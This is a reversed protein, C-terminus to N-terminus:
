STKFLKIFYPVLEPDFQKGSDNKILELATEHTYAPKYPRASILADYVDIIAMIRASLPIELGSLGKPYGTGDWKEHHSNTIEIGLSVFANNPYQEHLKYLTASGIETHTRMITLEEENLPGPKNLIADAIGVKGIDHLASALQIAKTFEIKHEYSNFYHNPLTTALQYCLNGVREIHEGTELDRSEALKALAYITSIQAKSIEEIKETVTISLDHHSMNLNYINVFEQRKFKELQYAGLTGIINEAFLFMSVSLITLSMQNSMIIGLIFGTLISFGGITANKTNLHLMFYGSTFVLFLGGYYIINLPEVLLMVVIGMGGLIYNATLILQKYKYYNQHFTFIITILLAPIVIFFRIIFFLPFWDPVLIYDTISFLAYLLSFLFFAIRVYYKDKSASYSKFEEELSPNFKLTYSRILSHM